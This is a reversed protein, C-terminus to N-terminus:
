KWLYMKRVKGLMRWLVNCCRRTWLLHLNSLSSSGTSGLSCDKRKRQRLQSPRRGFNPGPILSARPCRVSSVLMLSKPTAGSNSVRGSPAASCACTSQCQQRFAHTVGLFPRIFRIEGSFAITLDPLTHKSCHARQVLCECPLDKQMSSREMCCSGSNKTQVFVKSITGM